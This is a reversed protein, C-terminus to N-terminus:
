KNTDEKRMGDEVGLLYLRYATLKLTDAYVDDESKSNSNDTVFRKARKFIRMYEELVDEPPRGKVIVKLPISHETPLPTNM